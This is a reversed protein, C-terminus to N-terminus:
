RGNSNSYYYGGAYRCEMSHDHAVHCLDFTSHARIYFRTGNDYNTYASGQQNSGQYTVSKQPMTTALTPRPFIGSEFVPLRARGPPGAADAGAGARVRRAGPSCQRHCLSLFKLTLSRHAVSCRLLLVSLCLCLGHCLCVSGSVAAPSRAQSESLPGLSHRGQRSEHGHSTVTVTVAATVRSRSRSEHGHGHRRIGGRHGGDRHGDSAAAAAQTLRRRTRTPRHARSDMM